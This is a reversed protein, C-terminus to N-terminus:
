TLFLGAIAVVILAGAVAVVTALLYRLFRDSDLQEPETRTRPPRPPPGSVPDRSM